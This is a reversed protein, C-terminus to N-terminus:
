RGQRPEFKVIPLKLVPDYYALTFEFRDLDARTPAHALNGKLYERIEAESTPARESRLYSYGTMANIGRAYALSLATGERVASQAAVDTAFGFGHLNPFDLLFATIGDDVNLIGTVGRDILVRRLEDKRAWLLSVGGEAGPYAFGAYFQSSALMAVAVYLVAVGRRVISAGTLSSWWGGLGVAALFSVCLAAFVYYWSSQHWPHVNVFNFGTKLVLYAGLGFLLFADRRLRGHRVVIVAALAGVVAPYVMEVFRFSSAFIQAGNPAEGSLAAKLDLVPAFHVAATLYAAVHGVFGAKTGGSLPMASGVTAANYALYVLIAISTPAGIWVAARLRERLPADVLLAALCLAPLIFVDDLRSLVLFPLVSGMARCVSVLTPPRDPTRLAVSVVHLLLGGFLLSFASEMGDFASWISLNRVHVGVALYYAGPVVLLGLFRSGTMRVIAASALMAGITGAAGALTMAAVAQSEHSRLSLAEFVARLTYQWLPHFGNTTTVGDYTYIGHEVAKRAIALYHYSDGTLCRILIEPGHALVGYALPWGVLFGVALATTWVGLRSV